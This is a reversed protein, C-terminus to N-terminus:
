ISNKWWSGCHYHAALASTNKIFNEEAVSDGMLQEATQYDLPYLVDQTVLKIEEKKEYKEYARTLMFPGTSELVHNHAEISTTSSNALEEIVNRLFLNGSQRSYMFANGIIMPKDHLEYHACNELGLVFEADKLLPDLPEISRFDLDVYLGGLSYLIFYRAADVRQIEFPYNDYVELFWPYHREILNRNDEDTWLYYQWQPHNAKWTKSLRHFLAPLNHSKWTQHITNRHRVQDINTRENSGQWHWSGLHHHIAYSGFACSPKQCYECLTDSLPLLMIDNRDPFEHFVKTVMGPGTSDLVDLEVDIFHGLAHEVLEIIMAAIVPNKPPAGFMYNAIRVDHENSNNNKQDSGSENELRLEEAFVASTSILSDLPKLIEIDTDLYFGGCVYIVALRFLDAKQVGKPLADYCSLLEPMQDTVFQRCAQDEYFRYDWTSHAAICKKQWDLCKPSLDTSEATQHIIKPTEVLEREHDVFKRLEELRSLATADLAVSANIIKEFHIDNWTNDDRLSYIYLDPQDLMAVQDAAMLRRILPAEEGRSTEEYFNEDKLFDKRCLISGEWARINSLYAAQNAQSHIWWRSLICAAKGHKRAFWLQFSIRRPDYIDDDDWQCFYEGNAVHISLNRLTGLNSHTDSSAVIYSIESHNIAELFNITESDDQDCVIVLEKNPYNQLKFCRIAVKLLAVRKRTVCLCSVLPLRSQVSPSGNKTYKLIDANKNSDQRLSKIYREGNEYYATLLAMNRIYQPNNDKVQTDHEGHWIHFAAQNEISRIKRTTAIIRLSMADDEGGWGRFREDMEGAAYFILRRILFIGGCFPPIQGISQRNLEDDSRSIYLERSGALLDNSDEYTLEILTDYPNVADIDQQFQDIAFDLENSGLMMDADHIILIQGSSYKAALNIGWSFNFEGDNFAFYYKCNEPLIEPDITAHSDQEVLIIESDPLGSLQEVVFYLANLRHGNDDRFTILCSRSKVPNATEIKPYYEFRSPQWSPLAAFNVSHESEVQIESAVISFFSSKPFRVLVDCQSLLFLDVIAELAIDVEGRTHHLEGRDIENLFKHQTVVGPFKSKIYNEVFRSDTALFLQCPQQFTKLAFSMAEVCSELGVEDWYKQHGMINGGNGHRVHIGILPNGTFHKQAIKSIREAVVSTPVFKNFFGNSRSTGLMQDWNLCHDFIIISEKRDEGWRILNFIEQRDSLDQDFFNLRRNPPYIDLNALQSAITEFELVNVGDLDEIIEFLQLYLSSSRLQKYPTFRWDIVLVRRTRQAFLWASYLSILCDGLGTNRRSIVYRRESVEKDDFDLAYDFVSAANTGEVGIHQVVSPKVAVQKFGHVRNDWFYHQILTDWHQHQLFIKVIEFVESHFYYNIGGMRSKVVHDKYDSVICPNNHRNFGSLILRDRPYELEDYLQGLRSLWHPKVLVDSDLNVLRQCGLEVGLSWGMDLSVNMNSRQNKFIKIVPLDHDFQTVLRRTKTNTSNDDVIIVLCDDLHSKSITAITKGLYEPRNYTTLVLVIKPWKDLKQAASSIEVSEVSEIFGQNKLITHLDHDLSTM